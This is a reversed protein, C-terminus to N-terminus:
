CCNVVSGFLACSYRKRSAAYDVTCKAQTPVTEWHRARNVIATADMLGFGYLHSVAHGAGNTKWDSASVSKM